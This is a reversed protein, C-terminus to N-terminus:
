YDIIFYEDKNKPYVKLLIKAGCRICTSFLEKNSEEFLRNEELFVGHGSIECKIQKISQKLLQKMM